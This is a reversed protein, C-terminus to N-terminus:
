LRINVKSAIQQKLKDPIMKEANKRRTKVSCDHDHGRGVTSYCFDCQLDPKEKEKKEKM